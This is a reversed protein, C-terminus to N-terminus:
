SVRLMELYNKLMFLFVGEERVVDQTPRKEVWREFSEPKPPRGFILREPQLLLSRKKRADRPGEFHLLVLAAERGEPQKAQAHFLRRTLSAVVGHSAASRSLKSVSNDRHGYWVNHPRICWGWEYRAAGYVRLAGGPPVIADIDRATWSGEVVERFLSVKSRLLPSFTVVAAKEDRRLPIVVYDHGDFGKTAQPGHYLKGSPSYEVYVHRLRGVGKFTRQTKDVMYRLSAPMLDYRIGDGTGWPAKMLQIDEAHDSIITVDRYFSMDVAETKARDELTALKRPDVKQGFLSAWRVVEDLLVQSEEGSFADPSVHLGINEHVSLPEGKKEARSPPSVRCFFEMESETLPPYINGTPDMLEERWQYALRKRSAIFGGVAVTPVAFAVFWTGAGLM